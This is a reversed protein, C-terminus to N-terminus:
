AKNALQFCCCTAALKSSWCPLPSSCWAMLCVLHLLLQGHLRCAFMCSMNDAAGVLGLSCAGALLAAVNQGQFMMQTTYWSPAMGCIYKNYSMDIARWGTGARGSTFDWPQARYYWENPLAGHLKNHSVNLFTPINVSMNAWTAPLM